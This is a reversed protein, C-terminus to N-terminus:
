SAKEMGLLKALKVKSAFKFIGDHFKNPNSTIIEERGTIIELKGNKAEQNAVKKIPNTIVTNIKIANIFDNSEIRLGYNPNDKGDDLKAKNDVTQGFLENEIKTGNLSVYVDRFQFIVHDKDKIDNNDKLLNNITNHLRKSDCNFYIILYQGVERENCLEVIQKVQKTTNGTINNSADTEFTANLPIKNKKAGAKYLAFITLSVVLLLSAISLSISLAKHESLFRKINTSFKVLDTM